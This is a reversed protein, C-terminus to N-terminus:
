EGGGVSTQLEQILPGFEKLVHEFAMYCNNGTCENDKIQSTIRVRYTFHEENVFSVRIELRTRVSENTFSTTRWGTKIWGAAKDRVEVNSFYSTTINMLRKWVENESIGKRCTIDFWRNAVNSSGDGDDSSIVNKLAENEPLTYLIANKTYDKRLTYNRTWYGPAEVKIVYFDNKMNIRYTGNGVLTGDVYIKAESPLVNITIKKADTTLGGAAMIALAITTLVKQLM